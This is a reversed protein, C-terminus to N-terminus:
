HKNCNCLKPSEILLPRTEPTLAALAAAGDAGLPSALTPPQARQASAAPSPAARTRGGAAAKQRPRPPHRRALPRARPLAPCGCVSDATGPRPGRGFALVPVSQGLAEQQHWHGRPMAAQIGAGDVNTTLISANVGQQLLAAVMSLVAQSPGGRLPSISPIIHLVRVRKFGSAWCASPPHRKCATWAWSLNHVWLQNGGQTESDPTLQRSFPNYACPQFGSALLTHQVAASRDECLIAAPPAEALTRAAGSLVALEHSEVDLKWCCASRLSPLDDIALVDVTEALGSYSSSVVQNMPGRDTSFRLQGAQAGVAAQHITVRQELANLAVQQQLQHYSAAVPEFSESRCGVAGSALVIYTGANAGIDAFTDAPRLLHLVFAMDPWEHLGCYLNGTAGHMAPELLLATGNVWPMAYPRASLRCRLRWWAYRGYARLRQRQALSAALDLAPHADANHHLGRSM